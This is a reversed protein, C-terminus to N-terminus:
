VQLNLLEAAEHQFRQLEEDNPSEQGMQRVARDYSSRAEKEHGLQQHVMALFFWGATDMLFRSRLQTSKTLAALAGELDGARYRAVGLMMWVSATNPRLRITEEALQIAREPRRLRPDPCTALFWSVVHLDVFDRPHIDDTQSLDRFADEVQGLQM